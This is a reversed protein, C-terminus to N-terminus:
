AMRRRIRAAGLTGLLGLGAWAASPLPIVTVGVANVDFGDANRDHDDAGNTTDVFRMYKFDGGAGIYDSIKFSVGSETNKINRVFTWPGGLDNSVSIDASEPYAARDGFTTEFVVADDRNFSSGFSLILEGGLGLSYFDLEGPNVPLASPDGLANLPNSRDADVPLGSFKLGQTHSEVTTAYNSAASATRPAVLGLTLASAGVCALLVKNMNVEGM